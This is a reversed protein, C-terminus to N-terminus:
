KPRGRGRCEVRIGARREVEDIFRISGVLQSRRSVTRIFEAELRSTGEEVFQRYRASRECPSEALALHCPDPDVWATVELGVKQRYSSWPYDEPKAVMGARVPNLKVYRCCALLYHETEIASSKFRGEWLSGPRRDLINVYRTQRGALRKMLM